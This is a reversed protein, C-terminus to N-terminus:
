HQLSPKDYGLEGLLDGAIDSFERQEQKSFVSRWRGIRSPDIGAAINRQAERREEVSRNGIDLSIQSLRAQGAGTYELMCPEFPEELFTCVRQLTRQPECVLDEYRIEHYHRLSAGAQRAELIRSKWWHASEAVTKPGWALPMVSVAVDRGDRIVHLFDAEGFLDEILRTHSAYVPTNDGWRLKGRQAAYTAYFCELLASPTKLRRKEFVALLEDRRVGSETVKPFGYLVDAMRRTGRVQLLQDVVSPLFHTEPTIAIHPHSDLMVGLLTTGCRGSGIIFVPRRGPENAPGLRRLARDLWAKAHCDAWRLSQLSYKLATDGFVYGQAPRARHLARAAPRLRIGADPCVGHGDM